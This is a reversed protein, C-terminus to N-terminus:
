TYISRNELVACHWFMKASKSMLKINVVNFILVKNPTLSVMGLLSYGTHYLFKGASATVGAINTFGVSVKICMNMFM